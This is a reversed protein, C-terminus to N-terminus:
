ERAEAFPGVGMRGIFTESVQRPLILNAAMDFFYTRLGFQGVRLYSCQMAQQGFQNGIVPANGTEAIKYIAAANGRSLPLLSALSDEDNVIMGWQAGQVTAPHARSKERRFHFPPKFFRVGM